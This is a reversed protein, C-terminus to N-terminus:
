LGNDDQCAASAAQSATKATTIASGGDKVNKVADRAAAGGKMAADRAAQVLRASAMATAMCTQKHQSTLIHSCQSLAPAANQKAKVFADQWAAYADSRANACADTPAGSSAPAIAMRVGADDTTSVTTSSGADDARGGDLSVGVTRELLAVREDLEKMHHNDSCGRMSLTVLAGLVIGGGAIAVLKPPISKLAVWWDPGVQLPSRWKKGREIGIEDDSDEVSAVRKRPPPEPKSAPAAAAAKLVDAEILAPLHQGIVTDIRRIGDAAPKPPPESKPADENWSDDPPADSDRESM